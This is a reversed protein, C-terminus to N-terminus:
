DHRIPDDFATTRGNFGEEIINFNSGLTNQLIGTWRQNKPYRKVLNTKIDWTGPIFGWVSSSGYCLITKSSSM